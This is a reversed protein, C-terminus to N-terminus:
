LSEWGYSSFDEGAYRLVFALLSDRQLKEPREHLTANEELSFPRQDFDMNWSLVVYVAKKCSELQSFSVPPPLSLDTTKM